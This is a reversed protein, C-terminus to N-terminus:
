DRILGGASTVRAEMNWIDVVVTAGSVGGFHGLKKGGGDSSLCVVHRDFDFGIQRIGFAVPSLIGNVM